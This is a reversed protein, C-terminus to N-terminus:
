TAVKAVWSASTGGTEDGEDVFGVAVYYGPALTDPLPFAVPM